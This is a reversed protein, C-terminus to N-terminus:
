QSERCVATVLQHLTTKNWTGDIGKKAILYNWIAEPSLEYCSQLGKILTTLYTKDPSKIEDNLFRTNTFTFIPIGNDDGLFCLLNYWAKKKIQLKGERRAKDFDIKPSSHLQSEQQVLDVFQTQTILYRKGLTQAHAKSDPKIFAVSGKNWGRASKAFYLEQPILIPKQAQPLTKDRCGQYFRSSGEPKGGAIYCYFRNSLLNSGYCAYWVQQSRNMFPRNTPIFM